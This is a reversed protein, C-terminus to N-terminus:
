QGGKNVKAQKEVYGALTGPLKILNMFALHAQNRTKETPCDTIARYIPELRTALNYALWGLNHPIEEEPYPFHKKILKYVENELPTMDAEKPPASQLAWGPTVPADRSVIGRLTQEQVLANCPLDQRVDPM